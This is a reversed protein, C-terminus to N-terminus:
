ICGSFTGSEIETVSSPITVSTLSSCGSFAYSEISTVGSPIAVSTLSSCGSFFNDGFIDKKTYSYYGNNKNYSDGGEVIKVDSLDLIALKGSTSGGNYDRGAMERIFRVDTGNIEGVIKLNTIKYKKVSGIKNPLTGAKDLKVTIQKTILDDDAAHIALCGLLMFVVLLLQRKFTFKKM